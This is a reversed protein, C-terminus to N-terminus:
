RGGGAAAPRGPPAADHPLPPRDGPSPASRWSRGPGSSGPAPPAADHPLPARGGAGPEPRDLQLPIM